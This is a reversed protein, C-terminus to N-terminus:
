GRFVKFPNEWRGRLEELAKGSLTGYNSAKGVPEVHDSIVVESLLHDEEMMVTVIHEPKKLELKVQQTQYGLFKIEFLYEGSCLGTFSYEGKLDTVEGINLALIYITAGPLPNNSSDLVKGTISLKCNDQGFLLPPLFLFVLFITINKL